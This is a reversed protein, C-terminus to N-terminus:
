ELGEDHEELKEDVINISSASAHDNEIVDMVSYARNGDVFVVVSKDRNMILWLTVSLFLDAIGGFIVFATEARNFALFSIRRNFNFHLTSLITYGIIISIHSLTVLKNM